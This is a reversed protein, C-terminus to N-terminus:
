VECLPLADRWFSLFANCTRVSQVMEPCFWFDFGHKSSVLQKETDQLTVYADDFFFFIVQGTM